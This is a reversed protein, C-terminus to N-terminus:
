KKNEIKKLRRELSFIYVILGVLVIAVVAVVVKIKGSEYFYEEMGDQAFGSVSFFMFAGFLITNLIYKM